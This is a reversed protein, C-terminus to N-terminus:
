IVTSCSSYNNCNNFEGCTIYKFCLDSGSQTAPDYLNVLAGVNLPDTELRQELEELYFEPLTENLSKIQEKKMTSSIKHNVILIVVM